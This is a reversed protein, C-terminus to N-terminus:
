TRGAGDVAISAYGSRSGIWPRSQEVAGEFKSIATDRALTLGVEDLGEMLCRRRFSDLEFTFRDQYPTTVTMTELDVTIPQEKAVEVLRDVAEQPLVVPVIGNKFANGSFIDSFSPAIVAKVGMDALAWAAHERSSGCGFNDGAILIPAGAYRPDDFVNGPQARVTEFAGRGLGSRTITKLWHAPIIIDTDINKAGWPYATGSVTTVPQM